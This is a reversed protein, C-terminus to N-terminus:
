PLLAELERAAAQATRAIRRLETAATDAHRELRRRPRGSVADQLGETVKECRRGWLGGEVLLREVAESVDGPVTVRRGGRGRNGREERIHRRLDSATWGHYAARKQYKARNTGPVSLLHVVHAWTIRESQRCLEDLERKNYRRAFLRLHYLWVPGRGVAEALVPFHKDGYKSRERTHKDLLKGIAHCSRLQDAREPPDEIIRLHPRALQAFRAPTLPGAAAEKIRTSRRRVPKRKAM